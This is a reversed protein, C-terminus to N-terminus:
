RRAPVSAYYGARTRAQTSPRAIRVSIRRWGSRQPNTSTYGVVYQSALEDAIENYVGALSTGDRALFLRGGTEQALTRLAFDPHVADRRTPASVFGLGIAYIVSGSRKAGDLVHDYTVLSSTDEGDSLV